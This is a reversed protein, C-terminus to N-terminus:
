KNWGSTIQAKTYLKYSGWIMLISLIISIIAIINFTINIGIRIKEPTIDYNQQKDISAIFVFFAITLITQLVQSVIFTLIINYKYKIANGLVFFLLGAISSSIVAFRTASIFSEMYEMNGNFNRDITAMDPTILFIRGLSLTISQQADIPFVILNLIANIADAALISIFCTLFGGISVLCFHWVFKELNTAPLTLEMIRGQKNRLNHFICGAFITLMLSFFIALIILTIDINKYDFFYILEEESSITAKQYMMWRGAFCVLTIALTGFFTILCLTEYFAKNITLDYLGFNQFRNKNFDM